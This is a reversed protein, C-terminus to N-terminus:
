PGEFSGVCPSCFWNLDSHDTDTLTSGMGVVGEAAAVLMRVEELESRNFGTKTDSARILKELLMVVDLKEMHIDDLEKTLKCVQKQLNEVQLQLNEVRNDAHPSKTQITITDVAAQVCAGGFMDSADEVCGAGVPEEKPPQVTINNNGESASGQKKHMLHFPKFPKNIKPKLKFFSLPLNARKVAGREQTLINDNLFEKRQAGVESRSKWSQYHFTTWERIKIMTKM